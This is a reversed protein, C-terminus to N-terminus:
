PLGLRTRLAAAPEPRALLDGQFVECGLERLLGYQAETEVGEAVCCLGLNQAMTIITKAIQLDSEDDPLGRVFSQDIKLSHLPLRKLAALSSYGTGFDDLALSVGLARVGDLHERAGVGPDLIASETIELELLHPSLGTVALSAAVREVFDRARLQVNSVNVSVRVPRGALEWARAETCATTLVWEGLPIIFGTEEVLPIFQGPPVLPAGPPHWRVLAEAGVVRGTADHTAQYHLLFERRDLGGRMRTDLELRRHMAETLSVDYFRFTSRGAEKASYMAADANRILGAADRGDDPFLTIGISASVYLTAGTSVTFPEALTEALARALAAPAASDRAGEMVVIFEDGGLRAFTDGARVRSQVRRAIAVLLEDGIPHGLGDNITKFRDLDLFIVAGRTGHRAAQAVAQDLRSFLMTRNALGTLPDYHALRELRMESARLASVDSFMTVHHAVEGASDRTVGINLWQPYVEGNRRRNWVEGQWSGKANVEELVRAFENEGGGHTGLVRPRGGVVEAAPYGTIKEFAPNVAVVVGNRDTVVFGELAHEFVASGLSACRDKAQEDTV